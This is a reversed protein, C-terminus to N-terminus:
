LSCVWSAFDLELVVDGIIVSLGLIYARLAAGTRCIGYLNLM